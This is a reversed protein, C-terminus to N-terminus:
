RVPDEDDSSQRSPVSPPEARPRRPEDFLDDIEEQSLGEARLDAAMHERIDRQMIELLSRANRNTRIM